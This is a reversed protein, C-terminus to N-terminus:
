QIVGGKKSSFESIATLVSQETQYGQIKFYSRATLDGVLLTPVSEIQYQKLEGASAQTVPFPIRSRAQIDRDVQKLEILFGRQTLSKLTGMMRECHPCKSDFYLRLRFRKANPQITQPEPVSKLSKQIEPSSAVEQSNKAAYESLKAQLRRTIENKAELYKFWHDINEDSPNRAIEMFPAPPLYEGERFFEDNKPDLYKNWPFTQFSSNSDKLDSPPSQRTQSKLQSQSRTQADSTPAPKSGPTKWYDINSEKFYQIDAFSNTGLTISVLIAVRLVVLFGTNETHFASNNWNCLTM